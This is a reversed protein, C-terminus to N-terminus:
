PNIFNKLHSMMEQVRVHAMPSNHLIQFAHGVGGYVVAEVRKGCGRMMKCMELNRDKLVDMESVMVMAAPFKGAERLSAPNPNCWQHDRTAGRPLALRWYTDSASMTLASNSNKKDSVKESATRSEGGFFPQILVIGKFNLPNVSRGSATLRVAVHYAINAGASDGVLFVSSLDCKSLWSKQNKDFAQQKIWAIVTEGDEYAAPLRHEPALRYNVSVIVCRVKVAVNCLFEHYCGWSASGVCFGGGHFYVLLPLPTHHGAPVYVRTWIDNTLKIDSATLKSPDSLVSPPVTPVVPPREVCGDSFVRLLPEIEEVVPGHHHRRNDSLRHNNSVFSIAAM